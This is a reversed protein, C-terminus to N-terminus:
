PSQSRLIPRFQRPHVIRREENLLLMPSGSRELATALDESLGGLEAMQQTLAFARILHPQVRHAQAVDPQEFRGRVFSRGLSITALESGKLALRITLGWEASCSSLFDNYYESRELQSRPIWDEDRLVSPAWGRKYGIPDNVLQMPNIRYNYDAYEKLLEPAEYATLIQGSGKEIELRTLAGSDAQTIVMLRKIVEVWLDPQLAANYILDLDSEKLEEM